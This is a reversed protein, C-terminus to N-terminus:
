FRKLKAFLKAHLKRFRLPANTVALVICDEDPLATPVHYEDTMTQVDGRHYEGTHDSLGGTMILTVEEGAHTHEYVATGPRARLLRAVSKGRTMIRYDALGGAIHRWNVDTVEGGLYSRLPEPTLGQAQPAKPQEQGNLRAMVADLGGASMAQPEVDELLVGGTSEARAVTRRCEACLALHTAIVLATPEDAAGSAYALLLADEPHHVIRM